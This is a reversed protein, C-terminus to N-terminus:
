KGPLAAQEKTGSLPFGQKSGPERTRQHDRSPKKLTSNEYCLYWCVRTFAVVCYRPYRTSIGVIKYNGSFKNATVTLFSGRIQVRGKITRSVEGIAM